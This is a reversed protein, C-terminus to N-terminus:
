FDLDDMQLKDANEVIFEKRVNPKDGMLLDFLRDASAADEVTV